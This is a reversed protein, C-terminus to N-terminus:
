SNSLDKLEISELVHHAETYRDVAKKLYERREQLSEPEDFLSEFLESECLRNVLKKNLDNLTGDILFLWVSKVVFDILNNRVSFVYEGV